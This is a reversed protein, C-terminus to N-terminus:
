KASKMLFCVHSPKNPKYTIDLVINNVFSRNIPGNVECINCLSDNSKLCCCEYIDMWKNPIATKSDIVVNLTLLLPDKDIIEYTKNPALILSNVNEHKELFDAQPTITKLLSVQCTNNKVDLVMDFRKMDYFSLLITEGADLCYFEVLNEVQGITVFIEIIGLCKIIKNDASRLRTKTQKFKFKTDPFIIILRAYSICSCEAGTDLYLLSTVTLDKYRFTTQILCKQDDKLLKVINTPEYSSWLQNIFSVTECDEIFSDGHRKIVSISFDSQKQVCHICKKNDQCYLPRVPLNINNIFLTKGM